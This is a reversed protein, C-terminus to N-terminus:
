LIKKDIFEGWQKDDGRVDLVSPKAGFHQLFDM